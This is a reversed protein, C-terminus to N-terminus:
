APLYSLSLSLSLAAGYERVRGRVVVVHAIIDFPRAVGRRRTLYSSRITSDGGGRRRRRGSESRFPISAPTSSVGCGNVSPSQLAGAPSFPGASAFYRGDSDADTM